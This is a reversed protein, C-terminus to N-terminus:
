GILVHGNRSHYRRIGEDVVELDAETYTNVPVTRGDVFQDHKPPNEGHVERYRAAVCKGIESDQGRRPLPFGLEVCREPLTVFRTVAGAEAATNALRNRLLDGILLRERQAMGTPGPLYKECYGLFRNVADLSDRAPQAVPVVAAPPPYCGHRRISPLVEKCVWRQFPRAQPKDSRLVVRYLGFETVFTKNPNGRIGENQSLTNVLVKDDDDLCSAVQSPNSLELLQCVDALCFLPEDPTGAMRVSVEAPNLHAPVSLSLTLTM